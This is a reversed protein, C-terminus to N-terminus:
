ETLIIILTPYLHVQFQLMVNKDENYSYPHLNIYMFLTLLFV